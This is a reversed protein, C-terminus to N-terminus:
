DLGEHYLEDLLESLESQAQLGSLLGYDLLEAAMATLMRIAQSDSSPASVKESSHTTPNYWYM